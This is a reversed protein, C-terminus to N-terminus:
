EAVESYTVDTLLKTIEEESVGAALLKQKTEEIAQDLQGVNLTLSMKDNYSSNIRHAMDLAKLKDHLKIKLKRGPPKFTEEIEISQICAAQEPTIDSLDFRVEGDPYVRIYDLINSLAIRETEQVMRRAPLLQMSSLQDRLVGVYKAVRESKMLATALTFSAHKGPDSMPFARRYAVIAMGADRGVDATVQVYALAFRRERETLGPVLEDDAKEELLKDYDILRQSVAQEYTTAREEAQPKDETKKGRAM